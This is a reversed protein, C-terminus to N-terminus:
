FLFTRGIQSLLPPLHVRLLSYCSAGVPRVVPHIPIEHQQVSLAQKGMCARVLAFSGGPTLLIFPFHFLTAEAAAKLQLTSWHFRSWLSGM